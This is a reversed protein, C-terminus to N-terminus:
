RKFNRKTCSGNATKYWDAASGAVSDQDPAYGTIDPSTTDAFNQSAAASWATDGTVDDRVGNEVFHLAQEADPAATTGDAYVYHIGDAYVYHITQQVDKSRQVATTNHILHVTVVQNNQDDTDFQTPIAYDSDLKYGQDIYAQVITQLDTTAQAPITGNSVGSALTGTQLTKGTTDDILQYDLEQSDATYYIDATTDSTDADVTAASVSTQSPTYGSIAPVAYSDWSSTTWNSYAVEGTVEDVTATRTLQAPQAIAQVTGDPQHLNITRTVTKNLDNEGVGAPYNKSPNDPLPDTSAQSQIKQLFM